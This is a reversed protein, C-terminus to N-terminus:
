RLAWTCTATGQKTASPPGNQLQQREKACKILWLMWNSANIIWLATTHYNLQCHHFYVYGFVILHVFSRFCIFSQSLSLSSLRVAGDPWALMVRFKDWDMSRFWVCVMYKNLHVHTAFASFLWCLVPWSKQFYNRRRRIYNM